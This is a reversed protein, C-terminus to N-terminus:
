ISGVVAIAVGLANYVAHVGVAAWIRGTLLVLLSCVGGLVGVAVLGSLDVGGMMGHVAVFLATSVLAAVVGGAFSGFPSRLLAYLSVLIVVRFFGEEVVPAIVVPGVLGDFWWGSDLRGDVTPLHPLAADPATWGQVLRVALGLGVAWLMDVPRIRLLGVPRSRRLAVVVAALMGVWLLATSVSAPAGLTQAALGALIGGGLGMLAVALLDERWRFVSRGGLRWDDRRVRRARRVTKGGAESRRHVTDSSHEPM